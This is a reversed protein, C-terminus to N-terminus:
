LTQFNPIPDLVDEFDVQILWTLDALRSCAQSQSHVQQLWHCLAPNKCALYGALVRRAMLSVVNNFTNGTTTMAM